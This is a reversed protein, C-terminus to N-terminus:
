KNRRYHYLFEQAYGAHKGWKKRAFERIKKESTKKNNFYLEEMVRKVWVDVPFAEGFGLSFLLVCDAVKEGVGNLKMLEKKATEYPLKRLSNLWKEDAKKAAEFIYPSRFGCGCSRITRLSKIEDRTPFAHAKNKIKRGFSQALKSINKQIKPINSASSCIFSILCEWPDQRCIRLGRYRKIAEAVFKDKQLSKIIRGYDEELALYNTIFKRSCGEFFLVNGEQKLKIIKDGAILCYGDDKKSCRFLQGCELTHRLDFNKTRISFQAPRFGGANSCLKRDWFSVELPSHRLVKSRKAKLQTKTIRM